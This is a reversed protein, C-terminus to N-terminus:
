RICDNIHGRPCLIFSAIRLVSTVSVSSTLSGAAGSWVGSFALVTLLLHLKLQIM